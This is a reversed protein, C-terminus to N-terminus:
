GAVKHKWPRRHIRLECAGKRGITRAEPERCEHRDGDCCRSAKAARRARLISIGRPQDRDDRRDRGPRRDINQRPEIGVIQGLVETLLDHDGVAGPGAPQDSRLGDGVGRSVAVRHQEGIRTVGYEAREIRNGIKGAYRQDAFRRGDDDHRRRQPNGVELLKHRQRVRLGAFDVVPRGADARGCMESPGIERPLGTDVEYM